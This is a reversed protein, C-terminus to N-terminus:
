VTRGSNKASAEEKAIHRAFCECPNVKCVPCGFPKEAPKASPSPPMGARIWGLFSVTCYDWGRAAYHACYGAHNLRFKAWDFEGNMSLVIQIVTQQSEKGSHKLHRDYGDTIEQLDETTPNANAPLFREM